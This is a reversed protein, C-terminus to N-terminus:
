VWRESELRSGNDFKGIKEANHIGRKIGWVMLRESEIMGIVHLEKGEGEIILRGVKLGVLGVWRTGRM